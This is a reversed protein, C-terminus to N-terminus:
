PQSGEFIEPIRFLDGGSRVAKRREPRRSVRRLRREEWHQPNSDSVNVSDPAGEDLPAPAPLYVPLRLKHLGASSRRLEGTKLLDQEINTPEIVGEEHSKPDTQVAEFNELNATTANSADNAAAVAPVRQVYFGIIAVGCGLMASISLAGVLLLGNRRRLRRKVTTLPVVPRAALITREDAFRPQSVASNNDLIMFGRKSLEHLTM